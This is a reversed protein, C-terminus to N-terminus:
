GGPPGTFFRPASFLALMDKSSQYGDARWQEKGTADVVIMTPYGKVAYKAVIAKEIDGDLKVGVYKENMVQAVEADTWIWEDMSKCPGCWTTEFDIFVRKGTAAAQKLASPLDHQWVFPTTARPRTREPLLLDDPRRDAAKTIPKDVVALKMTRGDPSFGRFELVQERDGNKVFMFRNTGRAENISLVAKPADPASAELVSWTDNKDFVANNDDMAAVLVPTGNITASGARWSRATFRLVDPAPGGDPRVIWFDALYPEVVGGGYPVSLEAPGSTSWWDNTKERQALKAALAPGDDDFRGNRNKDLFLLTLDQPHQPMAANAAALVAVYADATPGLKMTGIKAPRAAGAPLTADAPLDRLPVQMGKQSFNPAPEGPAPAKYTMPIEIVQGPAQAYLSAGVVAALAASTSAIIALRSM